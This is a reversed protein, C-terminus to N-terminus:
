GGAMIPMIIINLNQRSGHQQPTGAVKGAFRTNWIKDTRSFEPRVKRSLWTFLGTEPNYHLREKLIKQSLEM